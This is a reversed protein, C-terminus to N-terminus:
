RESAPQGEMRESLAANSYAANETVETGFWAPAQFSRAAEESEFEVELLMLGSLGGLFVDIEATLGGCLPVRRRIKWILGGDAKKVLHEYAEKTLPLNYEERSMLGAGKYTLYYTEGDRRVRVVPKRCLYGQEIETGPYEELKDPCRELLWKREIERHEM